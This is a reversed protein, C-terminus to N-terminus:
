NPLPPNQVVRWDIFDQPSQVATATPALLSNSTILMQLQSDYLSQGSIGKTFSNGNGTTAGTHLDVTGSSNYNTYNSGLASIVNQAQASTSSQITQNDIVSLNDTVSPVTTAQQLNSTTSNDANNQKHYFLYSGVVAAFLIGGITWWEKHTLKM